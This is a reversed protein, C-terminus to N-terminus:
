PEAQRAAPFNIYMVLFRYIIIMMMIIKRKEVFSKSRKTISTKSTTNRPQKVLSCTYLNADRIPSLHGLLMLDVCCVINMNVGALLV